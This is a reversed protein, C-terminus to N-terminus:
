EAIHINYPDGVNRKEYNLQDGIKLVDWLEPSIALTVLEQNSSNILTGSAYYDQEYLSIRETGINTTPDGEKLTVEAFYPEHNFDSTTQYRSPMWRNIDYDYYTKTETETHTNGDRDQVTKTSTKHKTRINYANTPCFTQDTRHVVKYEDIYVTYRWQIIKVDITYTSSHFMFLLIPIAIAAVIGIVLLIKIAKYKM